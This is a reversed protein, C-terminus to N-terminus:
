SCLQKLGIWILNMKVYWLFMVASFVEDGAKLREFSYAPVSPDFSAENLLQLARYFAFPPWLFYAAPIEGADFLQATVLSVLLSILVIM